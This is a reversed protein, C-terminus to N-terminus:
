PPRRGSSVDRLLAPSNAEHRMARSTVRSREMQSVFNVIREHLRPPWQTDDRAHWLVGPDAEDRPQESGDGDRGATEVLRGVREALDGGLEAGAVGGVACLERQAPRRDVELV